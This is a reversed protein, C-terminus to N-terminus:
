NNERLTGIMQDFVKMLLGLEDSRPEAIPEVWEGAEVRRAAEVLREIPGTVHRSLSIGLLLAVATAVGFSGVIGSWLADFPATVQDKPTF